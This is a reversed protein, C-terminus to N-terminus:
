GEYVDDIIDAATQFATGSELAYLDTSWGASTQNFFM